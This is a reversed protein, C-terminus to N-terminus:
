VAKRDKEIILHWPTPLKAGAKRMAERAHLINAETTYITIVKTGPEVRAATGVPTGFAGRMGSSIRDAGAGVAIKHERLVQHPYLRIKLKYSNGAMKAIHRNGSIRAAELAQNRILCPEDAVLHIAVPFKTRLNGIEFQSIRSGPIGGMYEKRTYSGRMQQRFMRAPKRTM